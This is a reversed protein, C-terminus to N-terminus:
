YHFFNVFSFIVSKLLNYFYRKKKFKIRIKKLSIKNDKQIAKLILENEFVITDIKNLLKSNKLILIIIINKFLDSKYPDRSSPLKIWWLYDDTFNDSIKGIWDVFNKRHKISLEFFKNKIQVPYDIPDLTTDWILKERM